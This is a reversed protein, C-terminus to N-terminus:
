RRQKPKISEKVEEITYTWKMDCQAVGVLIHWLTKGNFEGNDNHLYCRIYYMCWKFPILIYFRYRWIKVIWNSEQYRKM